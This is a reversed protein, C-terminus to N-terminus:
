AVPLYVDDKWQVFYDNAVKMSSFDTDGTPPSRELSLDVLYKGYHRPEEFEMGRYTSCACLSVVVFLLAIWKSPFQHM